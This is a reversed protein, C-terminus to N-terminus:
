RALDPYGSGDAVALLLGARTEEEAARQSAPPSPNGM